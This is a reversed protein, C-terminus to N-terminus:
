EHIKGKLTVVAEPAYVMKLGKFEGELNNIQPEAVAQACSAYEKRVLICTSPVVNVDMDTIGMNFKGRYWYPKGKLSQTFGDGRKALGNYYYRKNYIIKPVVIDADTLLATKILVEKQNIEYKMNSCSIFEYGDTEAVDGKYVIRFYGPDELDKVYATHSLNNRSLYDELARRGADFAYEKNFPNDSTSSTSIRWHYLIKCVHEIRDTQEMCRLFLDYDQAGDYESRFGGTRDLIEKKIVCFHCIYNNSLFLTKNFDPKRFPRFYNNLEEDVKDEDTYVMEAGCNIKRVVEYLVNPELIDDHDLFAIYDGNAMEIGANSNGSIGKNEKLAKYKVRSDNEFVKNVIDQVPLNGGDAICLEWKTYSQELVSTLTQILSKEPTNFAPMIISIVPEYDFRHQRQEALESQTALEKHRSSNYDSKNSHRELVKRFLTKFGYRKLYASVKKLGYTGM